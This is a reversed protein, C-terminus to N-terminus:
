VKEKGGEPENLLQNKLNSWGLPMSWDPPIFDLLDRYRKVLSLLYREDKEANSILDYYAFGSETDKFLSPHKRDNRGAKVKDLRKEIEELKSM